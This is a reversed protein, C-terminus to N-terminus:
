VSTKKKEREGERQETERRETKGEAERVLL